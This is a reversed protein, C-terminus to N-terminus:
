QGGEQPEETGDRKLFHRLAGLFIVNIIGYMLSTNIAENRPVEPWFLRYVLFYIPVLVLFLIGCYKLTGKLKESM